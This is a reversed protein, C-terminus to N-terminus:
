LDIDTAGPGTRALVVLVDAARAFRVHRKTGTLLFGDGDAVAHLQVGRAGFSGNPELWAPVLIATGSAIKPLWEQRQEISAARELVGGCLVSSVFHPSPALARGFEEY